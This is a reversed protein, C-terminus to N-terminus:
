HSGIKIISIEVLKRTHPVLTVALLEVRSVTDHRTPGM